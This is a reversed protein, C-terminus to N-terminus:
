NTAKTSFDIQKISQHNINNKTLEINATFNVYAIFGRTNLADNDVNLTKNFLIQSTNNDKDVIECAKNIPMFLSKVETGVEINKFLSGEVLFINAKNSAEINSLMLVYGMYAVNPLYFLKVEEQNNTAKKVLLLLKELILNIQM